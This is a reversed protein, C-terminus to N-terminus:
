ENTCIKSVAFLGLFNLKKKILRCDWFIFIHVFIWDSIFFTPACATWHQGWWGVLLMGIYCATWAARISCEVLNVLKLTSQARCNNRGSRAPWVSFQMASRLLCLVVSSQGFACKKEPSFKQLACIEISTSKSFKEWVCKLFKCRMKVKKPTACM